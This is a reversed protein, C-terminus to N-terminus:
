ESSSDLNEGKLNNTMERSVFNWLKRHNAVNEERNTVVEIIKIGKSQEAEQLAPIFGEENGVHFYHAGYLKAAHSFELDMPTGFLDEFHTQDGAQPLYSFIGGGNNNMVVITVNLQYKRATLLGNLDHFFALDGILLYMPQSVTSMGLATSVVGDIGNAGRNAFIRQSRDNTFFYTDLDRIPMSNSSFLTSGEPLHQILQHVAMGEDWSQHGKVLLGKTEKNVRKWKELWDMNRRGSQDLFSQCFLNEGCHIFDTGRATPDQWEEGKSVVWAPIEPLGKLFLMLAKSVPMAGFRIILDPQLSEKLEDIRLFTDYCDIIPEKSHTGSRVFSLPDAVIPLAYEEAFRVISPVAGESLGPGCVILGRKSNVLTEQLENKFDSSLQRDGHFVRKAPRGSSFEVKQLDPILPERFPFNYHVPGEPYATSLAVGRVASSRAYQLMSPISEPLAMDISWKVHKGYLDIQDIAQPAGVERLEHPRDATLVILPVKAYRAEIVAPYYNAGATGSSCLIAVPKKKAKAIGLAFFAASREDVNIYTKVGPHHAFLLALPTSRSGPSIVVEDVGNGVLEEMFAALYDTLKKQHEDNM